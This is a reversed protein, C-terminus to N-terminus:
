PRRGDFEAAATGADGEFIVWLLAWNMVAVGAMAWWVAGVCNGGLGEGLLYGGLTPGVTRAGSSVSQAVGHITGLVRPHPTSNNVLITASPLAFTRSLVQCALVLTLAPWVLVPRNPLLALYPIVTYAVVSFPLFVRYSPLTGLKSNLRPYLLIQLPFGIVGIIATALGVRDSSLGLGGTFLFPLHAHANSSRPAPLFLFILANFASVHLALLHHTLLTLLVNKTFIQRFGLKPASIGGDGSSPITPPEADRGLNHPDRDNSTEQLEVQNDLQTYEYEHGDRWKWRCRSLLRLLYRGLRRGYDPRNRLAPHTEDLGLVVCLASTLIFCASVVNPLAYPYSQMWKIGTKGGLLSGPGFVDPFSAIPDALFGGLIPGIVVGSSYAQNMTLLTVANNKM